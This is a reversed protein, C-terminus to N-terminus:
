RFTYQYPSFLYLLISMNGYGKFLIQVVVEREKRILTFLIASDFFCTTEAAKIHRTMDERQETKIWWVKIQIPHLLQGSM